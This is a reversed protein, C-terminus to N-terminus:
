SPSISRREVRPIQRAGVANGLRAEDVLEALASITPQEFLRRLEISVSRPAPPNERDDPRGAPLPRGRRLFQRRGGASLGLLEQWIAGVERESDSEPGRATARALQALPDGTRRLSERDVKGSSTHPLSEIFVFQDVRM